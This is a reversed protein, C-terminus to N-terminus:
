KQDREANLKDLFKTLEEPKQTGIRIIRNNKLTLELLHSGSLNYSTLKLMQIGTSRSRRIVLRYGIGRKDKILNTKRVVSESINDWSTFKFRMQFPFARVWVGEKNIVTDMRLVFFIITLLALVMVFVIILMSDSVPNNGFSKGMGIQIIGGYIFIGIISLMILIGLWKNLRQREYFVLEEKM